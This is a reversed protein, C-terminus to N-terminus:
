TDYILFFSYCITLLGALLPQWFSIFSLFFQAIFIIGAIIAVAVFLGKFSTFDTNTRFAYLTLGTTVAATLGMSMIMSSSTYFSTLHCISFAFLGTFTVLIMYNIPYQKTLPRCCCSLVLLISFAMSLTLISTWLPFSKIWENADTSFSFVLVSWFTIIQQLSLIGYVKRVFDSRTEKETM